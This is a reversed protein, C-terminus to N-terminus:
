FHFGLEPNLHVFGPTNQNIRNGANETITVGYEQTGEFHTINDGIENDALKFYRKVDEVTPQINAAAPNFILTITGKLPDLQM